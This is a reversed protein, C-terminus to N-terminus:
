CPPSSPDKRCREEESADLRTRLDAITAEKDCREREREETLVALRAKVAALEAAM